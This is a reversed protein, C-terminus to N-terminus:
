FYGYQIIEHQRIALAVAKMYEEYESESYKCVDIVKNFGDFYVIYYAM